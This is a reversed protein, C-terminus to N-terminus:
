PRARQRRGARRLGARAGLEPATALRRARASGFATLLALAVAAGGVVRLAPLPPLRRAQVDHDGGSSLLSWRSRASLASGVSLLSGVSLASLTSGVSAASLASGVSGVSLASGVSGISLVSGASGISLVSGRSAISLFSDESWLSLDGM